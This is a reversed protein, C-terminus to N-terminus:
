VTGINVTDAARCISIRNRAQDVDAWKLALAESRRMGTQALMLWYTFHEDGYVDRDRELFRKLQEASWTVMEPAQERVQKGTPAKM